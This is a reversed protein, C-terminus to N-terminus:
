PAAACRGGRPVVRLVRDGSGNSTTLYLAGDPGVVATRLRGFTGDLAAPRVSGLDQLAGGLGHIRLHAGKLTAVALHDEFVGWGCGVLWAAGSTAVTPAGSSWIAGVADPFEALDTMPVAENYSGPQPNWGFNRGFAVRNIEDDRDPGHEVTVLAGTRPHRALGQLNRHGWEVIRRTNANPSSAFPNGAVGQGTTADIRLLKGGLSGLDQPATGIAADGTAVLLTPPTGPDALIRCGSHRGSTIPLGGLLPDAVRTAATWSADVTWAVVAVDLPGGGPGRRAQCTYFRRNQAFGPDLAVDLLGGESQAYVDGLDAQLDRVTGDALRVTLVGPRQAVVLTGDPGFALGWPVRLGSLHTTVQLVPVNALRGALEQSAWIAAALEDPDDLAVPGWHAFGAPDALRGLLAVYAGQVRVEALRRSRHEASEGIEFVVQARSTSRLRGLWYAAGGGDPARGFANAYVRRVFEADDVGGYAADFEPSQVFAPYATDGFSRGGAGARQSLWYRLGDLDAGRAYAVRYARLVQGAWADAEPSRLLEDLMRAPDAGQDLGARWFQLGGPDPSRGLVRVYAWEVLDGTTAFSEPRPNAAAAPPVPGALVLLGGVVTSVLAALATAIAAVGRRSAIRM